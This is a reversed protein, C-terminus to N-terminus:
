TRRLTFQTSFLETKGSLEMHTTDFPFSSTFETNVPPKHEFVLAAEARERDTAGVGGFSFCLQHGRRVHRLWDARKEHGEIRDHVNDSEGIYILTDLTVTGQSENHTCECVAYLGSEAPVSSRYRDRWYGIFEIPITKEAM